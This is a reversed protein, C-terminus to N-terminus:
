MDNPLFGLFTSKSIKLPCNNYTAEIYRFFLSAQSRFKITSCSWKLRKLKECVLQGEWERQLFTSHVNWLLSNDNSRTINAQLESVRPVMLPLQLAKDEHIRKSEMITTPCTFVSDSVLLFVFSIWTTTLLKEQKSKTPKKWWLIGGIYHLSFFPELIELIGQLGITAVQYKDELLPNYSSPM